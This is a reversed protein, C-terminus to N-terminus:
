TGKAPERREQRQLDHQVHVPGSLDGKQKIRTSSTAGDKPLQHLTQDVIARRFFTHGNDNSRVQRMTHVARTGM